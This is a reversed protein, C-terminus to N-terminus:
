PEAPFRLGIQAPQRVASAPVTSFPSVSAMSGSIANSSRILWIGDRPGPRPRALDRDPLVDPLTDRRSSRRGTCARTRTAGYIREFITTFFVMASAAAFYGAIRFTDRM